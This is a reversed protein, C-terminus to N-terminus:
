IDYENRFKYDLEFICIGPNNIIFNLLEFELNYNFADEQLKLYVQKASKQIPDEEALKKCDENAQQVLQSIFNTMEEQSIPPFVINIFQKMECEKIKNLIINQDM